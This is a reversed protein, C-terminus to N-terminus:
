PAFKKIQGASPKKKRERERMLRNRDKKKKMGMKKTDRKDNQRKEKM